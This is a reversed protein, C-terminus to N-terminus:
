IGKKIYDRSSPLSYRDAALARRPLKSSAIQNFALGDVAVLKAVVEGLSEGHDKEFYSDIKWKKFLPKTGSKELSSKM